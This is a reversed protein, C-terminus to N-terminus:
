HKADEQSVGRQGFTGFARRFLESLKRSHFGPACRLSAGPQRLRCIEFGTPTVSVDSSLHNFPAPKSGGNRRDGRRGETIQFDNGSNRQRKVGPKLEAAGETSEFM